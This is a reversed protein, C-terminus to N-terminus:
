IRPTASYVLTTFFSLFWRGGILTHFDKGKSVAIVTAGICVLGCGLWIVKRRGLWDMMPIFPSACTQGISYIAFVISANAVSNAELKCYTLHEDITYLSPMLCVYYGQMTACFYVICYVLYLKWKSSIFSNPEVLETVLLTDVTTDTEIDQETHNKWDLNPNKTTESTKPDVTEMKDIM